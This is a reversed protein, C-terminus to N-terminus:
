WGLCCFNGPGALSRKGSGDANVVEIWIRPSGPLSEDHTYAIRTGDPSWAAESDAECPLADCTTLKRLRGGDGEMIYINVFPGVQRSFALLTGNPSWSPSGDLACEPPCAGGTLKRLNRGDTGVVFIPTERSPSLTCCIGFAIEKGDPSWSPDAAPCTTSPCRTLARLHTGDSGVTYIVGGRTFAIERGDPSWTPSADRGCSAACSTLRRIRSGDANMVYIGSSVGVGGSYVEGAAAIQSRDPSWAPDSYSVAGRTIQQRHSGDPQISFLYGQQHGGEHALSMMDYVIRGGGSLFRSPSSSRAVVVVGGAGAAAFLLAVSITVATRRRRRSRARTLTATLGLKEDPDLPGIAQKIIAQMRTM